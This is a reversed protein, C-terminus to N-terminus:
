IADALVKSFEWMSETLRGLTSILYKGRRLREGALQIDWEFWTRETYIWVNGGRHVLKTRVGNIQDFWPLSRAFFHFEPNLRSPNRIAWENLKHFSDSPTQGASCLSSLSFRLMRNGLRM